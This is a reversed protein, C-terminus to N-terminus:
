REDGDGMMEAIRREREEPTENCRALRRIGLWVLCLVSLGVVISIM